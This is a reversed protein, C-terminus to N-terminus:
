LQYGFELGVQRPDFWFLEGSAGRGRLIQENTLNNGYLAVRWKEDQSHLTVRGNARTYDPLILDNATNAFQKAVWANDVYFELRWGNQLALTYDIGISYSHDPSFALDANQASSSFQNAKTVEANNVDGAFRIHLNDTVYATLEM